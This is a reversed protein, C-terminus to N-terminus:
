TATVNYTWFVRGGGPHIIFTLPDGPSVNWVKPHTSNGLYRTSLGFLTMGRHNFSQPRLFVGIHDKYTCSVRGASWNHSGGGHDVIELNFGVRGCGNFDYGGGPLAILGPRRDFGCSGATIHIRGRIDSSNFGSVTGATCTYATQVGTTSGGPLPVTGVSPVVSPVLLVVVAGLSLVAAGLALAGGRRGPIRPM